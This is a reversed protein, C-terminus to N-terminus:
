YDEHGTETPTHARWEDAKSDQLTYVKVSSAWTHQVAYTITYHQAKYRIAIM